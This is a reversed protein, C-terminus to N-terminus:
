SAKYKSSSMAYCFRMQLCTRKRPYTQIELSPKSANTKRRMERLNTQSTFSLSLPISYVCVTVTAFLRTTKLIMQTGKNLVKSIKGEENDNSSKLVDRKKGPAHTANVSVQAAIARTYKQSRTKSHWRNKIDNDSRGPIVVM